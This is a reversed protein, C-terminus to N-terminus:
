CRFRACFMWCSVPGFPQAKAEVPLSEFRGLKVFHAIARLDDKAASSEQVKLGSSGFYIRYV